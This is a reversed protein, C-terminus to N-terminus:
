SSTELSIIAPHAPQTSAPPLSASPVRPEWSTSPHPDFPDPLSLVSPFCVSQAMCLFVPKQTFPGAQKKGRKGKCSM